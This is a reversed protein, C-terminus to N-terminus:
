KGLVVVAAVVAAVAVGGFAMGAWFGWSPGAIITSQQAAQECETLRAGLKVMHARSVWWGDPLVGGDPETASEVEVVVRQLPADEVVGGDPSALFVSLAISAAQM